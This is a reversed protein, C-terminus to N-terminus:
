KGRRTFTFFAAYTENYGPKDYNVDWGANRYVDEFDLDRNDYLSQRTLDPRAKLIEDIIENQKISAFGGKVKACLLKNVAEIVYDPATATKLIDEPTLAKITM